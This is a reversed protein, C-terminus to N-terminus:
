IEKSVLIMTKEIKEIPEHDGTLYNRIANFLVDQDYRYNEGHKTGPDNVIFEQTEKDYGKIVLMHREPGPAAFYPNHLMQGNTPVIVANGHILELVLDQQNINEKIIFHPYQFYQKLIREATDQASTDVFSGYNETQFDAIALIVKKTELLTLDQDKAWFYAMLISAEECGDQQRQDEWEAFPAQPTFPIQLTTISSEAIYLNKVGKEFTQYDCNNWQSFILGLFTVLEFFM